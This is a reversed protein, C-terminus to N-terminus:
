TTELQRKTFIKDRQEVMKRVTAECESRLWRVGGINIPRPYHGKQMGHYLTGIHIPKSGGFFALTEDCTMHENQTQMSHCEKDNAEKAIRATADRGLIDLLPCFAAFHFRVRCAVSSAQSINKNHRLEKLGANAKEAPM